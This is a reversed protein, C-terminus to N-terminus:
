DDRRASRGNRHLCRGESNEFVSLSEKWDPLCLGFTRKLKAGSLVSFAPRRAPLPYESTTIASVQHCKKEQNPMLAVIAEAFGHWSTQGSASLHYIGNYVEPSEHDRVRMLALTTTEAVMRSWTPSGVQDKVVQLSERERALRMITLMFNHGRAGYIWCLRFILHRGGVQQIARDGSWKTRGYVSLPNPQDDETYPETRDGDYVYDTSYHVLITGLRKTEEAMIGPAQGNISMALDSEREAKDVATYAAANIVIDPRIERIWRQISRGETLDIEPYDVCVLQGLPACARQLEWGVQGNKGIIIIRPLKV